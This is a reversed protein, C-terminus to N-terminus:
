FLESVVFSGSLIQYPFSTLALSADYLPFFLSSEPSELDNDLYLFSEPFIVHIQLLYPLCRRFIHFIPVNHQPSSLCSQTQTGPAPVSRFLPFFGRSPVHRPSAPPVSLIIIASGGDTTCWLSHKWVRPHSRPVGSPDTGNGDAKRSSKREKAALCYTRLSDKGPRQGQVLKCNWKLTELPSWPEFNWLIVSYCINSIKITLDM